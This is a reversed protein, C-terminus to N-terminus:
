DFYNAYCQIDNEQQTQVEPVRSSFSPFRVESALVSLAPLEM